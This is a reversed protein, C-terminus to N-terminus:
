AVERSPIQEYEDIMMELERAIENLVLEARAQTEGDKHPMYKKIRKMDENRRQINLDLWAKNLGRSEEAFLRKCGTYRTKITVPRM